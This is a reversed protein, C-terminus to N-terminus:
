RRNKVINEVYELVADALQRRYPQEKSVTGDYVPPLGNQQALINLVNISAIVDNHCSTRIRDMRSVEERYEEGSDSSHVKMWIEMEFIAKHYDEFNKINREIVSLRKEDDKLLETLKDITERCIM